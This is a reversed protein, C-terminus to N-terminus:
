GLPVAVWVQNSGRRIVLIAHEGGARLAREFAAASSITKGNVKLIRDQPMVRGFAPTGPQLKQVTVGPGGDASGLTIGLTGTRDQSPTQPPRPRYSAQRVEEESPREGLKVALTTPEGKRTVRVEIKEGAPHRGVMRILAASSGVLEGGFRVIVDGPLLGAMAGPQGPQVAAVLVGTEAQVGMSQALDKDLDQLSIGLWGRSIKGQTKLDGLFPSVMDLPVAFGIGQGAANIATNIGIVEGRLNFLPGGSNGPNISADTQIFDDYPGAGIVRGKASVIGATVTHTLGFPNGIAVVWDGVLMKESAGLQVFPLAEKADIKVLAVDIRSDTGVVTGMYERDDALRVRVEQSNAVVHNNTLLYGDASILFGSGQGTQVRYQSNGQSRPAGFFPHMPVSQQAVRQKVQLNVVAPQLKKILPALSQTPRFGRLGHDPGPVMQTQVAPSIDAPDPSLMDTAQAAGAGAAFSVLITALTRKM